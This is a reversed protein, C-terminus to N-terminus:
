EKNELYSIIKKQNDLLQDIDEGDQSASYFALGTLLIALWSLSLVSPPEEKAFTIMSIPWLIISVVVLGVAIRKMLNSSIKM